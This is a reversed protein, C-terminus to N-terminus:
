ARIFILKYTQLTGMTRKISTGSTGPLEGLSYLDIINKISQNSDVPLWVVIPEPNYFFKNKSILAQKKVFEVEENTKLYLHVSIPFGNSSSQKDALYDRKGVGDEITAIFHDIKERTSQYSKNTSFEILVEYFFARENLRCSDGHIELHWVSNSAKLDRILDHGLEKKYLNYKRLIIHDLRDRNKYFAEKIKPTPVIAICKKKNSKYAIELRFIPVGYSAGFVSFISPTANKLDKIIKDIAFLNDTTYYVMYNQLTHQEEKDPQYDVYVEGNIEKKYYTQLVDKTLAPVIAIQEIKNEDIGVLM